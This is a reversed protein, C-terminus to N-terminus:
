RSFSNRLELTNFYEVKQKAFKRASEKNQLYNTRTSKPLFIHKYSKFYNIRDLVWQSKQIIFEEIKGTGVRRPTTVVFSGDCYVALRIRKARKSVKLTYNINENKLEINKKM